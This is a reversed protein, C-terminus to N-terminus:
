AAGSFSISPFLSACPGSPSGRKEFLARPQIEFDGAWLGVKRGKMDSPKAIGSSKKAILMLSSRQVVQGINVLRIGKSRMQLASSLWSTVFQARGTELYVSPPRSGGAPLFPSTSATNRTCVKRAPWTIVRLSPRPCGSPFFSPRGSRDRQPLSTSPRSPYPYLRGTLITRYKFPNAVSRVLQYILLSMVGTIASQAKIM